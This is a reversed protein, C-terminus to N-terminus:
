LLRKAKRCYMPLMLRIYINDWWPYNQPNVYWDSDQLVFACPRRTFFPVSFKPNFILDVNFRRAARPVVVQDWWLKSRSPLVHTEVNTFDHFLDANKPTALFVVYHSGRDLAIM